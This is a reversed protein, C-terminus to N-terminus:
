PDILFNKGTLEAVARIVARINANDFNFLMKGPPVKDSTSVVTSGGTAVAPAAGASLVPHSAPKPTLPTHAGVVPHDNM